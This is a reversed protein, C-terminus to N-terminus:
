MREDYYLARGAGKAHTFRFVLWRAWLSAKFAPTENSKCSFFALVSLILPAFIVKVEKRRQTKAEKRKGKRM